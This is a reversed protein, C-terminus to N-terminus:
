VSIERGRAERRGNSSSSGARAGAMKAVRSNFAALIPRQLLEALEERSSAREVADLIADATLQERVAEEHFRAIQDVMTLFKPKEIVHHLDVFLRRQADSTKRLERVVDLLRERAEDSEVGKRVMRFAQGLLARVDDRDETAQIQDFLDRLSDRLEPGARGLVEELLDNRLAGLIAKNEELTRAPTQRAFEEVDGLVEPLTSETRRGDKYDPHARGVPNRGGHKYCAGETKTEVGAAEAQGCPEDRSNTRGCIADYRSSEEIEAVWEAWSDYGAAEALRTRRRGREDNGDWGERPPTAM